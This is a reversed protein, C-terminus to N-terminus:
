ANMSLRRLLLYKSQVWEWTDAEGQMEAVKRETNHRRFPSTFFLQAPTCGIM